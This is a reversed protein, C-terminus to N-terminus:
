RVSAPMRFRQLYQLDDDDTRVAYVMTSDFAAVRTRPPLQVRAVLKGSGDFVDYLGPQEDRVKARLVWIQPRGSGPRTIVAGQLFPPLHTPWPEIDLFDSKADGSAGVQGSPTTRPIANTLQQRRKEMVISRTAADIPVREYAAPSASATIARDVYFDVHYDSGRVVAVRGDPLVGWEDMPLLPNAMGNRFSVQGSASTVISAKGAAPRVFAVTDSRGRGRDFRLIPISDAAAPTAGRQVFPSGQFYIRGRADVGRPLPAALTGFGGPQGDARLPQVSERATGNPAIILYRRNGGDWLVSSDGPLAALGNPFLFEGPGRGERGIRKVAGAFDVLSVTKEKSDSVIVQGDRLARVGSIVSFPEPYEADPRTLVATAQALCPSAACVAGLITVFVRMTEESPSKQLRM